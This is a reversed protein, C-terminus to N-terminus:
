FIEIHTTTFGISMDDTEYVLIFVDNEEEVCGPRFLLTNGALVDFSVEIADHVVNTFRVNEFNPEDYFTVLVAASAKISLYTMLGSTCGHPHGTRIRCKLETTSIDDNGLAPMWQVAWKPTRM